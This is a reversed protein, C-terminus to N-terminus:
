VDPPPLQRDGGPDYVPLQSFHALCFSCEEGDERDQNEPNRQADHDKQNM